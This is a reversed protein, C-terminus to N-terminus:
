PLGRRVRRVFRRQWPTEVARPHYHARIWAVAADPEMGDLVCLVALATGTRGIGGGCGIEVRADPARDYAERLTSTAEDPDSPVWFDRWLIWRQEWPRASPRKGTLHVALTPEDGPERAARLGRGRVLRGSPLGVVGATETDWTTM